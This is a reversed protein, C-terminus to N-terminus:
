TTNTGLYRGFGHIPLDACVPTPDEMFQGPLHFTPDHLAMQQHIMDVHTNLDRGLM